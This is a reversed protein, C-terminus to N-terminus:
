SMTVIGADAADALLVGAVGPPDVLWHYSMLTEAVTKRSDHIPGVTLSQSNSARTSRSQSRQVSQSAFSAISAPPSPPIRVRPECLGESLM